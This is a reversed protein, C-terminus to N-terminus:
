VYLAAYQSSIRDSPDGSGSRPPLFPKSGVWSAPRPTSTQRFLYRSSCSKQSSITKSDSSASIERDKSATTTKDVEQRNRQHAPLCPKRMTNLRKLLSYPYSSPCRANKIFTQVVTSILFLYYTHIVSCSNVVMAARPPLLRHRKVGGSALNSM